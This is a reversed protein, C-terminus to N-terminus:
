PNVKKIVADAPMGPKLDLDPNDLTITVRYVLKVREEFTQVSKPTFEAQSSIFSVTGTFRKDPFADTTVDVTEGLHVNGLDLENVYARLWPHRVDGLTLVPSGPNLYEGPEASKSLVIGDMPATLETYTVQQRAQNVMEQAGRVQARALDIRESRPGQVVLDYQAQAQDLAHAAMQIQEKRPGETRLSLAQRVASVRSGAENYQHRATKYRTDFVEFDRQSVTKEALLKQYRDADAKALELQAAASQKAELASTLEARASDIEQPRSGNTLELLQQRAQDVRARALRIEEPRSGTELEALVARAQDLNAQALSAAITQDFSELRALVQGQVVGDGEDVLRQALRGPIKFGLRADTAEINGSITLFGTDAQHRFFRFYVTAAVIAALALILIKKKM